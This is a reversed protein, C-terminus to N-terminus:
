APMRLWCFPTFIFYVVNIRFVLALLQVNVSSTSRLYEDLVNGAKDLIWRASSLNRVLLECQSASSSGWITATSWLSEWILILNADPSESVFVSGNITQHLKLPSKIWIAAGANRLAALCSFSILFSLQLDPSKAIMMSAYLATLMPAITFIMPVWLFWNAILLSASSWRQVTMAGCGSVYAIFPLNTVFRLPGAGSEVILGILPIVGFASM